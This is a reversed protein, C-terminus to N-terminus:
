NQPPLDGRDELNELLRRFFKRAKPDERIITRLLDEAHFDFGEGLRERFHTKRLITCLTSKDQEDELYGGAIECLCQMCTFLELQFEKREM